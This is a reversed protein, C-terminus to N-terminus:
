SAGSPRPRCGAQRHIRYAERLYDPTGIFRAGCSPCQVAPVPDGPKHTHEQLMTPPVGWGAIIEANLRERVEDPSAIGNQLIKRAAAM